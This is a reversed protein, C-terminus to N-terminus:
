CGNACAVLSIHCFFLVAAQIHRLTQQLLYVQTPRNKDNLVDHSARQMISM